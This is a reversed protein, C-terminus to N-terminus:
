YHAGFLYKVPLAMIAEAVNQQVRYVYGFDTLVLQSLDRSARVIEREGWKRDRTERETVRQSRVRVGEGNNESKFFSM